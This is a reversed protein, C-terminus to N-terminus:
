ILERLTLLDKLGPVQEVIAEPRFSRLEKLTLEIWLTQPMEALRNPVEVVVHGALQEMVEHFNSKDIRIRGPRMPSSETQVDRATLEALVLVCLPLQPIEPLLSGEQAERNTTGMARARKEPPDIAM